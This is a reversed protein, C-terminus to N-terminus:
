TQDEVQEDRLARDLQNRLAEMQDRSLEIDIRVPGELPHSDGFATLKLVNPETWVFLYDINGTGYYRAREM